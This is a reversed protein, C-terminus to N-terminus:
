HWQIFHEKESEIGLMSLRTSFIQIAVEHVKAKDIPKRPTSSQSLAEDMAVRYCLHYLPSSTINNSLQSM